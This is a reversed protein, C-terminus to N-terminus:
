FDGVHLAYSRCFPRCVFVVLLFLVWFLVVSRIHDEASMAGFRVRDHVQYMHVDLMVNYFQSKDTMFDQWEELPAGVRASLIVFATHSYRRIAQLFLDLYARSLAFLFM